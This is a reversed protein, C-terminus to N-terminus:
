RAAGAAALTNAAGKTKRGLILDIPLGVERCAELFRESPPLDGRLVQSTYQRSFGGARAIDAARVRPEVLERLLLGEM